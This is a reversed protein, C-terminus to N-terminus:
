RSALLEEYADIVQQTLKQPDFMTAAQIKGAAVM